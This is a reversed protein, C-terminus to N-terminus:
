CEHTSSLERAIMGDGGIVIKLLHTPPCVQPYVSPGGHENLSKERVVWECGNCFTGSCVSADVHYHM